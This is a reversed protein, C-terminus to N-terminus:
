LQKLLSEIKQVARTVGIEETCSIFILDDEHLARQATLIWKNSDTILDVKNILVLMKKSFIVNDAAIGLRLLYSKKYEEFNGKHLRLSQADVILVILDALRACETARNIGENEIPDDVNSRLGATDAIVVPYGGINFSTEIVDRTTGAVNAVISIPKQCIINMFSSKGVNPEGLIVTRVGHRRMEGRRGDKLFRDIDIILEHVERQVQIMTDPEINEDEAFDIYAELHAIVRLIRQRWNNYVKSLNGSAQLLAQKRQIETEANILDALGEVETLDLKNSWFARKTFEGPLAPRLGNVTNLADCLASVVATGGHVHFECCDEGTFSHPQPFWLVLGRDILDKSAPHYIKRLSAYRPRIGKTSDSATQPLVDTGTLLKVAERTQEGSVRVVAM